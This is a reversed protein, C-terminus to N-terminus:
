SATSFSMAWTLMKKPCFWQMPSNSILAASFVDDARLIFAVLWVFLWDIFCWFLLCNFIRLTHVCGSAFGVRSGPPCPWSTQLRGLPRWGTWQRSWRSPGAQFGTSGQPRAQGGPSFWSPCLVLFKEIPKNTLVYLISYIDSLSM